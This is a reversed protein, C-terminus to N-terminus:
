TIFQLRDGCVPFSPNVAMASNEVHVMDVPGCGPLPRAMSGFTVM